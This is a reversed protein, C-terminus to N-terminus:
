PTKQKEERGVGLDTKAVGPAITYVGGASATHESSCEQREAGLPRSTFARVAKQKSLSRSVTLRETTDSEKRGWPNPSGLSRQWPIRWALISSHTAMGKELLDERGLSWVQTEWMAPLYKVMQAVLSAERSPFSYGLFREMWETGRLKSCGLMGRTM